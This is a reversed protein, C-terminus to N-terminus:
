DNKKHCFHNKQSSGVMYKNFFHVLDFKYFVLGYKIYLQGFQQTYFTKSGGRTFFVFKRMNMKWKKLEWFSNKQSSGLLYKKYFVEGNKLFILGCKIFLNTYVLFM